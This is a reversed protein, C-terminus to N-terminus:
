VVEILKVELGLVKRAWNEFSLLIEEPVKDLPIGGDEWEKFFSPGLYNHWEGQWWEGNNDRWSALADPGDIHWHYKTM